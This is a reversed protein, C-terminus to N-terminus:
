VVPLVGFRIAYYVIGTWEYAVYERDYRRLWWRSPEIGSVATVLGLETPLNTSRFLHRFTALARRGHYPSTVIALRGIDHEAAFARAARAEDYTNSVLHPLVTVRDRSVGADNLWSVREACEHCNHETVDEPLTLLLRAAPYQRALQAAVPLREWEHSALVVIADPREFERSVVLTDGAFRLALAALVVLAVGGAAAVRAQVSRRSKV